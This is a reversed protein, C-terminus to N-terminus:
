GKMRMAGLAAFGIKIFISLAWMAIVIGAVKGKSLRSLATFGIILLVITWITFVDFSSLFSALVPHEKIDVLFAPSSKVVTAMETPDVSGRAVVIVALIISFIVMPLWAYLTTSFAQPFTGDGGMMRVGGWLLLAALAYWMIGIAPGVFQGVKMTAKSIRAVREMDADSMNPNQKKMQEASKAFVADFDMHPMMVFTTVYALGVILVLPWLFDPRRAIDAFTETPSFFVGM